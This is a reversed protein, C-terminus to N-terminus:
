FALGDHPNCTFDHGQLSGSFPADSFHAIVILQDSPSTRQFAFVGAAKMAPTTLDTTTGHVAADRQALRLVEEYRTRIAAYEAPLRHVWSVWM